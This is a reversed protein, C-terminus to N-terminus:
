TVSDLLSKQLIDLRMTTCMHQQGLQKSESKHKVTFRRPRHAGTPLSPRIIGFNRIVCSSNSGCREGAKVTM